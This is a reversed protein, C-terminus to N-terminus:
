IRWSTLAVPQALVEPQRLLQGLTRRTGPVETADDVLAAVPALAFRREALRPHPVELAPPGPWRELRDGWLLVDVDIARPGWRAQGRRDRGALREIELVAGILELPQWQSPTLCIRLAANLYDPQAPGVAATRFVPSAEIQGWRAVAAVVLRMRGLIEDDGGLNGGLGLLLTHPALEIM